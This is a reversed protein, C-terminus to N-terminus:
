WRQGSVHLPQALWPSSPGCPPAPRSASFASASWWRGNTDKFQTLDFYDGWSGDDTRPCAYWDTSTLDTRYVLILPDIRTAEPHVYPKTPDPVASTTLYVMWWTPAGDRSAYSISPQFQQGADSLTSWATPASCAGGSATNVEGVRLHRRTDEGAVQFVTRLAYQNSNNLGVAFDYSHGNRIPQGTGIVANDGAVTVGCAAAINATNTWTSSGILYQQVFVASGARTGLWVDGNMDTLLRPENFGPLPPTVETMGFYQSSSEARYLRVFYNITQTDIIAVWLRGQGDVTAATRDVGGGTSSVQICHAPGFSIGGDTSRAICFGDVMGGPSQVTTDAGGTAANWASNSVGMNVYYM